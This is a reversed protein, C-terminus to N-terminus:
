GIWRGEIRALAEGGPIERWGGLDDYLVWGFGRPGRHPSVMRRAPYEAPDAWGPVGWGEERAARPRTTKWAHHRACLQQGNAPTTRGGQSRNKRHDWEIRGDCTVGHPDYQCRGADRYAVTQYAAQEETPTTPVPKPGIARQPIM